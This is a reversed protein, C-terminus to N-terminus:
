RPKFSIKVEKENNKILELLSQNTFRDITQNNVRIIEDGVKLGAKAASSDSVIM